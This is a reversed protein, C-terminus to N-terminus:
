WLLVVVTVIVMAVYLYLRINQLLCNLATVIGFKNSVIGIFWNIHMIPLELSIQSPIELDMFGHTPVTEKTVVIVMTIIVILM